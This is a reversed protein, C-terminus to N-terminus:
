EIKNVNEQHRSSLWKQPSSKSPKTKEAKISFVVRINQGKVSMVGALTPETVGNEMKALLISNIYTLSNSIKKQEEKTFKLQKGM